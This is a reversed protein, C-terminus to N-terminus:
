SKKAKQKAEHQKVDDKSVKVVKKLLSQFRKLQKDDNRMEIEKREM